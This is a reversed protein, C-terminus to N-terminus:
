DEVKTFVRTVQNIYGKISGDANKVIVNSNSHEKDRPRLANRIQYAINYTPDLSVGHVNSQSGMKFFKKKRGTNSNTKTEIVTITGPRGFFREQFAEGNVKRMTRETAKRKIPGISKM